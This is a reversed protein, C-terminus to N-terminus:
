KLGFAAKAKPLIYASILEHVKAEPHVGDYVVFKTPDACQKVPTAYKDVCGATVDTNINGNEAIYRQQIASGVVEDASVVLLKIDKRYKQIESLKEAFLANHRAPIVPSTPLNFVILRNYGRAALNYIAEMTKSVVTDATIDARQRMYDNSGTWLTVITQAPNVGSKQDALFTNVQQLLGPLNKRVVGWPAETAALNSDVGSGGVAKCNLALSLNGALHEVFTPGNSYRGKWYLPSPPDIGGTGKYTNGNDSLSDGFSLLTGRTAPAASVASVAVLFQLVLQLQM